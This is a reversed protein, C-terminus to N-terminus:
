FKVKPANEAGKDSQFLKSAEFHFLAAFVSKPFRRINVNYNTAVTNYGDRVSQIGNETSTLESMLRSVQENSRLEPYAEQLRPILAINTEMDSAANARESSGTPANAYRTRADAIAIFVAKEQGQAGKVSEVLNDILDLRRQYQTEIKAWSNDVQAKAVVLSNYNGTLWMGSIVILILFILTSIAAKSM